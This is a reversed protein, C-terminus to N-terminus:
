SLLPSPGVLVMEHDRFFEATWAPPNPAMSVRLFPEMKGAPAFAILMRGPNSDSGSFAHPVGRPGVVSEGAVLKRRVDGVQFTVEGELVYFYEEQSLHYHLPPGGHVLNRHEIVFLGGNTEAPLAKFLMTSFGRTRHEGLRDIGAGVVHVERSPEPATQSFAFDALSAAPLIAAASKLGSALFSRRKM